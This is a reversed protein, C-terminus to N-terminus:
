QIDNEKICILCHSFCSTRSNLGKLFHGPCSNLLYDWQVTDTISLNYDELSASVMGISTEKTIAIMTSMLVVENVVHTQEATKLIGLPIKRTWLVWVWELKHYWQMWPWLLLWRQVKNVATSGFPVCVSTFWTPKQQWAQHCAAGPFVSIKKKWYGDYYALLPRITTNHARCGGSWVQSSFRIQDIFMIGSLQISVKNFTQHLM